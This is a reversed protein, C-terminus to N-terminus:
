TEQWPDLNDSTIKKLNDLLFEMHTKEKKDNKSKADM